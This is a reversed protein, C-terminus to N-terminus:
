SMYYSPNCKSPHHTLAGLAPKEVTGRVPVVNIQQTGTGGEESVITVSGPTMTGNPGITVAMWVVPQLQAPVLDQVAFEGILQLGMNYVRARQSPVHLLVVYDPARCLRYNAADQVPIGDRRILDLNPRRLQEQNIVYLRGECVVAAHGYNVWEIQRFGGYGALQVEGRLTLTSVVFQDPSAAADASAFPQDANLQFFNLDELTIFLVPEGCREAYPAHEVVLLDRMPLVRRVALLTPPLPPAGMRRDVHIVGNPDIGLRVAQRIIQRQAPSLVPTGGSETVPFTIVRVGNESPHHTRIETSVGAYYSLFYSM